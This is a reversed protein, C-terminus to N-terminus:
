EEDIITEEKGPNSLQEQGIQPAEWPRNLERSGRLSAALGIVVAATLAIVSRKLHELAAAPGSRLVIAALSVILILALVIALARGWNSQLLATM